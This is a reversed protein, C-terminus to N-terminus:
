AADGSTTGASAPGAPIRGKPDEPAASAGDCSPATGGHVGAAVRKNAADKCRRSCYVAHIRMTPPIEGPCGACPRPAAALRMARAEQRKRRRYAATWEAQCTRCYRRNGGRATLPHGKPCETKRLNCAPPGDSRLLNVLATVAELHRPNFCARNRCLHDIQLGEPIPGVYTEYSLRHTFQERQGIKLRGYGWNNRSGTWEWCGSPAIERQAMLRLIIPAGPAPRSVSATM